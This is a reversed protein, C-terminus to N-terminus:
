EFMGMMIVEGAVRTVLGAADSRDNSTRAYGVLLLHGQDDKFGATLVTGVSGGTLPTITQLTGDSSISLVESSGSIAGFAPFNNRVVHLQGDISEAVASGGAYGEDPSYVDTSLAVGAADTQVVAAGSFNFSPGAIVFGTATEIVAAARNLDTGTYVQQWQPVLEANLKWLFGAGPQATAAGSVVFGGDRTPLLDDIYTAAGFGQVVPAYQVFQLLAGDASVRAFWPDEVDTMTNAGGAIVVNGEGDVTAKVIASDVALEATLGDESSWVVEGLPDLRLLWPRSQSVDYDTVASGTVIVDGGPLGIVGDARQGRPSLQYNSTWVEVGASDLRTVLIDGAGNATDYGVAVFDGSETVAAATLIQAQPGDVLTSWNSGNAAFTVLLACAIFLFRM